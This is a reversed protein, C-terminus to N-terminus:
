LEIPRALHTLWNLERRVTHLLAALKGEHRECHLKNDTGVMLRHAILYECFSEM